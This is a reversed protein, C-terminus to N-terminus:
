GEVSAGEVLRLCQCRSWGTWGDWLGGSWLAVGEGVWGLEDLGAGFVFCM